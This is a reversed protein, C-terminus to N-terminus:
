KANSARRLIPRAEKLDQVEKKLQEVAATLQKVAERLAAYEQMQKINM